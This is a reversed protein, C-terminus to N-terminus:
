LVTHLTAVHTGHLMNGTRNQEATSQEVQLVLDDHQVQRVFGHTSPRAQHMQYCGRHIVVCSRGCARGGDAEARQVAADALADLLEGLSGLLSCQCHCMSVHHPKEQVKPTYRNLFLTYINNESISTARDTMNNTVMGHVTACCEVRDLIWWTCIYQCLSELLSDEPGHPTRLKHLYRSLAWMVQVNEDHGRM